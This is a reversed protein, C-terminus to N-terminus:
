VDVGESCVDGDGGEKGGEGGECDATSTGRSDDSCSCCLFLYFSTCVARMGLHVKDHLLLESKRFHPRKKLHM